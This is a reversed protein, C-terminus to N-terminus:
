GYYKKYLLELLALIRREIEFLEATQAPSLFIGERTRFEDREKMVKLCEDILEDEVLAMRHPAHCLAEFEAPETASDDPLFLVRKEDDPQPTIDILTENPSRWVAHMEAEIFIGPTEWILWGLQKSGGNDIAHFKVNSFCEQVVAYRTKKVDLFLPSSSPNIKQCFRTIQETINRPTTTRSKAM